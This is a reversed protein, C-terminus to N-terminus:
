FAVLTSGSQYGTLLFTKSPPLSWSGGICSPPLCCRSPDGRLPSARWILSFKHACNPQFLFCCMSGTQWVSYTHSYRVKFCICLKPHLAQTHFLGGHCLSQVLPAHKLHCGTGGFIHTQTKTQVVHTGGSAHRSFLTEGGSQGMLSAHKPM